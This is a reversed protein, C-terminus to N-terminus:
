FRAGGFGCTSRLDQNLSYWKNVATKRPAGFYTIFALSQLHYTYGDVTFPYQTEDLPDGVEMRDFGGSCNVQNDYFPDDMWEALEHSLASVDEAFQGPDDVFTSYAYTQSTHDTSTSSHYGGVCCLSGDLLYINYTIFIPLMDPKAKVAKFFPQIAADFAPWSMEGYPVGGSTQASGDAPSVHITQTRAVSVPNLLVHYNKNKKVWEWFNGRQFADIYETTGLDVGGQVFDVNSKLLPSNVTLDVISKNTGGVIHKVPDFTMNGNQQGYVMRVPVMLVRINKTTNTKAPDPGIMTYNVMAGGPDVFSGSWQSIQKGPFVRVHHWPVTPPMVGFKPVGPVTPYNPRADTASALSVGSAIAFLAALCAKM